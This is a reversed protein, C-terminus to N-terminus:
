IPREDQARLEEFHSGKDSEVSCSEGGTFGSQRYPPLLTLLKLGKIPSTSRAFVCEVLGDAVTVKAEALSELGVEVEFVKFRVPERKSDERRIDLSLLLLKEDVIDTVSWLGMVWLILGKLIDGFAESSGSKDVEM